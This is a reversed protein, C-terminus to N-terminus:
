GLGLQTNRHRGDREDHIEECQTKRKEDLREQREASAAVQM